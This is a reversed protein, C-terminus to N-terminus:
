GKEETATRQAEPPREAGGNGDADLLRLFYRESFGSLFAVLFYTGPNTITVGSIIGWSLLIFLILAVIGGILLKLLLKLKNEQFDTLTIRSSRAQLVGSVFGGLAGTIVIALAALWSIIVSRWSIIEAQGVFTSSPLGALKDPNIALPSALFFSPLGALKDTNIVLPSILFFVAFLIAGWTLLTRLRKLQLGDSIQLQLGHRIILGMAEDLWPFLRRLAKTETGSLEEDRGKRLIGNVTGPITTIEDVFTEGGEPRLTKLLTLVRATKAGVIWYPVFVIMYREALDLTNSVTLFDPDRSELSERASHLFAVVRDRTRPDIEGYPIVETRFDGELEMYRTRLYCAVYSEYTQLKGTEAKGTYWGPTPWQDPATSMERDRDLPNQEEQPAPRLAM